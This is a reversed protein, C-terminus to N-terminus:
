SNPSLRADFQFRIKAADKIVAEAEPHEPNFILNYEQPVVCSRVALALAEGDILFDTGVEQTGASVKTGDWGKPYADDALAMIQSDPVEIQFLLYNRLSNEEGLNVLIELQALAISESLYVAPHNPLNWRGGYQRAGSGSFATDKHKRKTIRYAKM